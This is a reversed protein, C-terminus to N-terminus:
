TYFVQDEALIIPKPNASEVITVSCNKPVGDGWYCSIPRPGFYFMMGKIICGHAAILITDDKLDERSFLEQLFECGRATVQELTEGGSPPIYSAPNKFFADFDAPTNRNEYKFFMGEYSGFGIERLREDKQILINRNGLIIKATDYARILPSSFAKTFPIDKLGLATKEALDRGEKNLPIDATGQIRGEKNWDTVGHRVIYLRM